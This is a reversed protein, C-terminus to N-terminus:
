FEKEEGLDFLMLIPFAYPNFWNYGTSTDGDFLLKKGLDKERGYGPKTSIYVLETKSLPSQVETEKETPKLSLEERPMEGLAVMIDNEILTLGSTPVDFAKDGVALMNEPDYRVIDSIRLEDIAGFFLKGTKAGGM